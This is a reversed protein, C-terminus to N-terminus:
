VTGIGRALLVGLLPPLVMLHSAWMLQRRADALAAASPLAADSAFTLRWQAIRRGVDWQLGFIVALIMLKALLLPQPWYWAAGKIGWTVRALGSVLTAAAAVQAIRHMRALRELAAANFWETRALATASSLFVVWGLIAALHLYALVAEGIM